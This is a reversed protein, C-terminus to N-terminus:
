KGDDEINTSQYNIRSPLNTSVEALPIKKDLIDVGIQILRDQSNSYHVSGRLEQLDTAPNFILLERVTHTAKMCLTTARLGIM